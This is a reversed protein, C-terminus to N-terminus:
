ICKIVLEEYIGRNMPNGAIVSKRSLKLQTGIGAYLDIVSQHCANTLIIKAGKELAKIVCDRLRVQDEWTFISENYKIFGNTNHKITYPPDVFILDGQKAKKFSDEFDCSILETRQLLQSIREFNDTDLLVNKKTGIPVNFEGKLNVRYLGNWCTRNLYIFKAAKSELTRPKSARISYYYEKSHQKHHKKLHGQVKKWNDKIAIYTNILDSNKDSLIAKEPKTKFFVAGSGLFPEIFTNHTVDFLDLHSETLWRKGGAWKLFPKIPETQTNM